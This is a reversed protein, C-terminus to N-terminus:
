GMNKVALSAFDAFLPMAELNEDRAPFSCQGTLDFAATGSDTPFVPEKKAIKAHEATYSCPNPQTSEIVIGNAALQWSGGAEQDEDKGL